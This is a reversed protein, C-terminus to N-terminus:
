PPSTPGKSDDAPPRAQGKKLWREIDAGNLSARLKVVADEQAIAFTRIIGTLLPADDRLKENSVVALEAIVKAGELYRSLQLAARPNLTEIRVTAEARDTLEVVGTFTMVNSFIAHLRPLSVLQNQVLDYPVGAIWISKSNDQKALLDHLDKNLRTTKKGLGKLVADDMWVRVPSVILTHPDILSAYMPEPRKANRLEYVDIGDHKEIKLTDPSLKATLAAGAQIKALDFRGNVVILWRERLAFSAPGAVILDRVDRTPDMGVLAMLQARPDTKLWHRVRELAYKKFLPSALVQRVNVYVVMDADNPVYREVDLPQEARGAPVVSLGGAILLFFSLVRRRM